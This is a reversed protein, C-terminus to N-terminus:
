SADEGDCFLGVYALPVGITGATAKGLMHMADSFTEAAAAADAVSDEAVFELYSEFLFSTM